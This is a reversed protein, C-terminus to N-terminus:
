QRKGPFRLVRASEEAPQSGQFNQLLDELNKLLGGRDFVRGWMMRSIRICAGLPSGARAREQDIRWQLGRLRLQREPPAQEIFDEILASRMREFADPDEDALAVWQDFEALYVDQQSM